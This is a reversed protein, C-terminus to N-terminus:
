NYNDYWPYPTDNSSGAYVHDMIIVKRGEAKALALEADFWDM